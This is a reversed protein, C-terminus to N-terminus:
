GRRYRAVAIPIALALIAAAWILSPALYHSAPHGLVAEARPGLTLARITDVM